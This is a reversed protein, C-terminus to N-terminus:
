VESKPVEDMEVTLNRRSLVGRGVLGSIARSTAAQSYGQSRAIRFAGKQSAAGQNNVYNFIVEEADTLRPFTDPATDTENVEYFTIVPM